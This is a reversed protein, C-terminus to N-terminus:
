FLAPIAINVNSLAFSIILSKFFNVEYKIFVMFEYIWYTLCVGFWFSIHLFSCSPADFDFQGFGTIFVLESNWMLILLHVCGDSFM